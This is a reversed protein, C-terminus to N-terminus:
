RGLRNRMTSIISGTWGGGTVDGSLGIDKSGEAQVRVRVGNPEKKFYVGAMINWDHLTMGKEGLVVGSNLDARILAFGSVGMADKAADYVDQESVDKFFFNQEYKSWGTKGEPGNFNVQGASDPFSSTGVCGSILTISLILMFAKLKNKM